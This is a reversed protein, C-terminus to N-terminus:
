RGDMRARVARLVEARHCHEEDAEFCMVAVREEGALAALEDLASAAPETALLARYRDRAARGEPSDPADSFGPRNEKPNGLVPRHLYAVGHERLIAAWGNKSFGRKRSLPTLRVDVLTTVGADALRRALDEAVEGQYGVGTIGTDSTM